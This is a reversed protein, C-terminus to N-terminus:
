RVPIHEVRAPDGSAPETPREAMQSLRSLLDALASPDSVADEIVDLTSRAAAILEIAARQLHGFAEAIHVQEAHEEEAM